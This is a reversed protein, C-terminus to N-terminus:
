FSRTHCKMGRRIRGGGAIAHENEADHLEYVLEDFERDTPAIHRMLSDLEFTPAANLRAPRM